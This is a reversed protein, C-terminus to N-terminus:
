SSFRDFLDNETKAMSDCFTFFRETFSALWQRHHHGNMILTESNMMPITRHPANARPQTDHNDNTTADVTLATRNILFYVVGCRVM